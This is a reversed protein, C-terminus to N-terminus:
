SLLLDGLCIPHKVSMNQAFISSGSSYYLRWLVGKELTNQGFIHSTKRITIVVVACNQHFRNNKALVTCYIDTMVQFSVYYQDFYM